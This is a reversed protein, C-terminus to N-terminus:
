GEIIQGLTLNVSVPNSIPSTGNPDTITAEAKVAEISEDTLTTAFQISGSQNAIVPDSLSSIRILSNNNAAYVKMSGSMLEGVFAPDAVSYNLMLKVQNGPSNTLPVFHAYDLAQFVSGTGGAPQQVPESESEPEPEDDIGPTITVQADSFQEAPLTIFILAM